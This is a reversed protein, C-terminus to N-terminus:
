HIMVRVCVVVLLELTPKSTILIRTIPTTNWLESTRKKTSEHLSTQLNTNIQLKHGEPLILNTFNPFEGNEM